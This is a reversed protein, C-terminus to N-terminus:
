KGIKKKLKFYLFVVRNFNFKLGFTVSVFNKPLLISSHGGLEHIDFLQRM